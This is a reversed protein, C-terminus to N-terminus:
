KGAPHSAKMAFIYKTLNDKQEDTIKAKPAMRNIAKTWEEETRSYINKKGHCRTCDESYVTYGKALQDVTVDPHKSKIATVEADGPKLPDASSTTTAEKKSKCAYILLSAFCVMILIQLKSRM